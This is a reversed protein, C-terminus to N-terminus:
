NIKWVCITGSKKLIINNEKGFCMYKPILDNGQLFFRRKIRFLYVLFRFLIVFLFTM